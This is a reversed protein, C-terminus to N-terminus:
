MFLDCDSHFAIEGEKGPKLAITVTIDCGHEGSVSCPRLDIMRHIDEGPSSPGRAAIVTGYDSIRM